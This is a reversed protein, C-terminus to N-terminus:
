LKVRYLGLKNHEGVYKFGFHEAFKIVEPFKSPINTYLVNCPRMLLSEWGFRAALRARHAKLVHIHCTTYKTRRYYVMVAIIEDNLYGGIYITNKIPLKKVEIGEIKIRDYIENDFIIKEIESTNKTEKVVFNIM